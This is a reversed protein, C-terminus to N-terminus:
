AAVVLALQQRTEHLAKRYVSIQNAAILDIDLGTEQALERLRNQEAMVAIEDEARVFKPMTVEKTQNGVGITFM